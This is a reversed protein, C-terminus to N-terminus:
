KEIEQVKKVNVSFPNGRKTIGKGKLVDGNLQYNVHWTEGKCGFQLDPTVATIKCGSL